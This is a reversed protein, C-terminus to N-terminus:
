KIVEGGMSRWKGIGGINVVNLYGEKKLYAGAVSARAGSHCYVYIESQKDKTPIKGSQLSQLSINVSGEAHGMKYETSSRVDILTGGNKLAAQVTGLSVKQGRSKFVIFGIILIVIILIISLM